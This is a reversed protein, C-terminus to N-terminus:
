LLILSTVTNVKKRVTEKKREVAVEVRSVEGEFPPRGRGRIAIRSCIRNDDDSPKAISQPDAQENSECISKDIRDTM